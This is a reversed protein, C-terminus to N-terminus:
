RRNPDPDVQAGVVAAAAVAGAGGEVLLEVEEGAELFAAALEGAGERAALLL